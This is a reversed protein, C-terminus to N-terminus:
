LQFVTSFNHIIQQKLNDSAINLIESAKDFITEISLNSEDSELFIKDLPM